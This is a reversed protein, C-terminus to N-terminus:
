VAAMGYTSGLLQLIGKRLKSFGTPTCLITVWSLCRLRRCCSSSMFAAALMASPMSLSSPRGTGPWGMWYRTTFVPAVRVRELLLNCGVDLQCINYDRRVRVSRRALYGGGRQGHVNGVQWLVHLILRQASDESFPEDGGRHHPWPWGRQSGGVIGSIGGIPGSHWDM